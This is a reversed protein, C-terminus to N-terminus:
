GGAREILENYLYNAADEGPLDDIGPNEEIELLIRLQEDTLSALFNDIVEAKM